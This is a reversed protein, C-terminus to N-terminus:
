VCQGRKGTGADPNRPWVEGWKGQRGPRFWVILLLAAIVSCGGSFTFASLSSFREYLWGFLISDPLLMLGATLNFWGFATGRRGEPALDAVM